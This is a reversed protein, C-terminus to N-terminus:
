PVGSPWLRRTIACSFRSMRMFSASFFAAASGGFSVTGIIRNKRGTSNTTMRPGVPMLTAAICHARRRTPPREILIRGGAVSPAEPRAVHRVARRARRRVARESREPSSEVARNRDPRDTPGPSPPWRSRAPRGASQGQPQADGESLRRQRGSRGCAPRGQCAKPRPLAARCASWWPWIKGCGRRRGAFVYAPRFAEEAKPLEKSLVYSLGLNSLVWPEDPLIKLASDYYRRADDHRGIQDLATGQVSLLRWDPNDPSHRSQSCPLGAPFQRQRRARPWHPSCRRTAPISITATSCRPPKPASGPPASRRAMPWRWTPMRPTPGIASAMYKRPTGRDADPPAAEAKPTVSGTIDSMTQCGGLGAALIAMLAVSALLRRLSFRQRM